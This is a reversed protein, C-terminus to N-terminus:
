HFLFYSFLFVFLSMCSVTICIHYMEIFRVYRSDVFVCMYTLVHMYSKYYGCAKIIQFFNIGHSYM